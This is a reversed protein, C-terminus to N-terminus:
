VNGCKMLYSHIFQQINIQHMVFNPITFFYFYLKLLTHTHTHPPPNRTFGVNHPFFTGVFMAIDLIRTRTLVNKPGRLSFPKYIMCFLTNQFVLFACLKRHPTPKPTPSLFYLKYLIFVMLFTGMFCPFGVHTHTHKLTM